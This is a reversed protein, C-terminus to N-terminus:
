FPLLLFARLTRQRQEGLPRAHRRDLTDSVQVVDVPIGNCCSICHLGHHVSCLAFCMNFISDTLGASSDMAKCHQLLWHLQLAICCRRVQSCPRVHLFKMNFAFYDCKLLSLIIREVCQKIIQVAHLKM